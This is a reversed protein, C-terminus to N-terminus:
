NSLILVTLSVHRTQLFLTPQLVVQVDHIWIRTAVSELMEAVLPRWHSPVLNLAIRTLVVQIGFQTLFYLGFSFTLTQLWIHRFCFRLNSYTRNGLFVRLISKGCEVNWLWNCFLALDDQIQILLQLSEPCLVTHGTLMLLNHTSNLSSKMSEILVRSRAWIADMKVLSIASKMLRCAGTTFTISIM